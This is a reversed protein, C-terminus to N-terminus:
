LILDVDIIEMCRQQVQEAEIVLLERETVVPAVVPQGIHTAPYDGLDESSFRRPADPLVAAQKRTSFVPFRNLISAWCRLSKLPTSTSTVVSIARSVSRAAAPM